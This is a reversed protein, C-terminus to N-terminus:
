RSLGGKAIKRLVRDVSKILADETTRIAEVAKAKFAPVLWPTAEQKSSGAEMIFAIDNARIFGGRYSHKNPHHVYNVTVVAREGNVGPIMRRRKTVINKETFGTTDTIGTKGPLAVAAKFNIRAQKVIVMAGRRLAARVLGGNRSTLEPPLRKLTDLVGNLGTLELEVKM